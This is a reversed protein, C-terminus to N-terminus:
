NTDCPGQSLYHIEVEWGIQRFSDAIKRLFCRTKLNGQPAVILLGGEPLHDGFRKWEGRRELLSLTTLEIYTKTTNRKEPM